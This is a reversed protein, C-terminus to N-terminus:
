SNQARNKVNHEFHSDPVVLGQREESGSLSKPLGTQGAVNQYTHFISAAETGLAFGPATQTTIATQDQCM